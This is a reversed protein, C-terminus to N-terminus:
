EGDRRKLDNKLRDAFAGVQLCMNELALFDGDNPLRRLDTRGCLYDISVSFFDALKVLSDMKPIQSGDEYGLIATLSLGTGKGVETPKLDRDLRLRRLRRSFISIDTPIKTYGLITGGEAIAQAESIEPFLNASHSIKDVEPMTIQEDM